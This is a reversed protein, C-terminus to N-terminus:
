QARFVAPTDSLCQGRHVPQQNVFVFKKRKPPLEKSRLSMETEIIIYLADLDCMVICLFVCVVIVSVGDIYYVCLCVFM